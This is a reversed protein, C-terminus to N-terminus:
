AAPAAIGSPQELPDPPTTIPAEPASSHVRTARVLVLVSADDYVDSQLARFSPLGSSDKSYSGADLGSLILWDGSKVVAVSSTTSESVIPREDVFGIIESISPNVELLVGRPVRQASVDVQFGTQVTDFGTVTVTGESSVTRQPIPTRQGRNFRATRGELVFLTGFTLVTTDGASESAELIARALWSAGAGTLPFAATLADDGIGDAVELTGGVTFDLGMRRSFTRSVAVARVEVLWGDPGVQLLKHFENARRVVEASGSVILRDGLRSVEGGGGVVTRIVQEVDAISDFGPRMFQIFQAAKDHKKFTVVGDVYDAELDVQEALSRFVVEADVDTVSVSVPQSDEKTSSVVVSVGAQEAVRIAATKFPVNSLVLTM